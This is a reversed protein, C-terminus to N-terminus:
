TAPQIQCLASVTQKANAHWPLPGFQLGHRFETLIRYSSMSRLINTAPYAKGKSMKFCFSLNRLIDHYILLLVLYRVNINRFGPSYFIGM